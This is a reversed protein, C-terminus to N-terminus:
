TTGGDASLTSDLMEKLVPRIVSAMRFFGLDNPHCNDIACLNRDTEGYFTEGDIFYVNKDGAAVAAEYTARVVERRAKMKESYVEAPRTMMLIPIRPHAERIRDFFPKHTAALHEVNPANHDYDYVFAGMDFTNIYDALILEGKANGSLGLNYFDFDLWRSLIANYANTSNCSCGGETISSGYFVVPKEYRYPTPETVAAGDEVAIEISELQENRPFYVTVQELEPSKQFTKEFVRTNYDPPNVVGLHRANGREGLMVQASQSAYISMGVDVVLTKLAVKVTFTPSDTKFAVRGGPCRTGLRRLHPLQSLVEEPLRALRKDREFFPVGSVKLPKDFLTYTTM